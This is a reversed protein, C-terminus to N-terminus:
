TLTRWASLEAATSFANGPTSEYEYLCVYAAGAAAFKKGYSTAWTARVQGSADNAADRSTGFEPVCWGKYAPFKALFARATAIEGDYNPYPYGHIGDCDLGLLDARVEAWKDINGRTASNGPEAEWGTLTNAVLLDPRVAKVIEYFRNKRALAESHTYLGDRVKKDSEHWVEVVDGARLNACAARVATETIASVSTPKWSAHVVGIRSDRPAVQSFATFFQRVAIGSGWKDIVRAQAAATTGTADAGFVTGAPPEPDPDPAPAPREELEAIRARLQTITDDRQALTSALADREVRLAALLEDLDAARGQAETLAAEAQAAENDIETLVALLRDASSTM